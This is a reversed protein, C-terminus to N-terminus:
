NSLKFALKRSDTNGSFDAKTTDTKPTGSVLQHLKIGKETIVNVMATLDTPLSDEAVGSAVLAAKVHPMLVDFAATLKTEADSAKAELAVLDTSKSAELDVVKKEAAELSAKLQEVTGSLSTLEAKVTSLELDKQGVQPLLAEYKNLLTQFDSMNNVGKETVDSDTIKGSLRIVVMGPLKDDAALSGATLSQNQRSFIKANKAAGSGVLSLERWTKLGVLRVHVGDVGITHGEPCTLTILNTFDAEPSAYDFDCESCFAHHTRIGVSVEDVVSTELKQVIDTESQPVYFQGILEMEGTPTSRLKANFVKGIPLLFDEHMIHLPLAKGPTNFVEEMEKLTAPSVRAGQLLGGKQLPETSLFRAEYVAFTDVPADQDGIANKISNRITDTLVVQKSCM